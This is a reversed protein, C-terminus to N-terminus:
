FRILSSFRCVRSSAFPSTPFSLFYIPICHFISRSPRTFIKCVFPQPRPCPKLSALEVLLSLESSSSHHLLRMPTPVTARRDPIYCMFTSGGYDRLHRCFTDVPQLPTPPTRLRRAYCARVLLTAILLLNPLGSSSSFQDFNNELHATNAFPFPIDALFVRQFSLIETSIGWLHIM